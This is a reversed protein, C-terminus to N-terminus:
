GNVRFMQCVRYLARGGADVSEARPDPIRCEAERLLVRVVFM